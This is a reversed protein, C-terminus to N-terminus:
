DLFTPKLTAYVTIASMSALTAILRGVFFTPRKQKKTIPRLM